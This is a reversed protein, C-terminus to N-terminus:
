DWFILNLNGIEEGVSVGVYFFGLIEIIGYVKNYM